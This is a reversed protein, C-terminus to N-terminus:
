RGRVWEAARRGVGGLAEATDLRLAEEGWGRYGAAQRQYIGWDADSLGDGREARGALRERVREGALVCEVVRLRAGKGAAWGRVAERRGEEAFTGDLVVGGEEALAAGARALVERYTAESAERGYVGAGFEAPGKATGFLGRRVADTSIVRWGLEGAVARAVATKGTGPLGVVVVVTRAGVRDAYRRAADFYSGAEVRAAEREAESFEAEGLRFGAVKGRVYARYCRYFPEVGRLGGDPRLRLYEEVFYYGLDPRGRAALDMALFAVEGATDGCRFRENFEICDFVFIREAVNVSECRLDGHGDVIHGGAVREAFRGAERALEGEVWRRVLAREGAWAMGETQAFNERWNGAIVGWEGYRDVEPGRRAGEHFRAVVAAIERIMAETVEGRRVLEDLMRERRLRRMLVGYDREEGEGVTEVGLYIEPSLRSNLEVEARCAALRKEPTTYDLFGFDVPKKLKLVRDQGVLVASIHTQILPEGAWEPLGHLKAIREGWADM